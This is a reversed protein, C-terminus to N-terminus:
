PTVYSHGIRFAKGLRSDAAIASNLQELGQEFLSWLADGHPPDRDRDYPFDWSKQYILVPIGDFIQPVPERVGLFTDLERAIAQRNSDRIGRNFLGFLTFPDIDAVFGKRGDSFQDGALTSLGELRSQADQLFLILPQRDHRHARRADALAQYFSAWRFRHPSATCDGFRDRWFPAHRFRDLDQPQDQFTFAILADDQWHGPMVHWITRRNTSFFWERPASLRQWHVRIQRGDGPNEAVVGTAKIKMVSATNGHTDFPLGQKQTYAAKIAIRDGLRMSRVVLDMDRDDSGHEWLGEDIFRDTQDSGAIMAGVFWCPSASSASSAALPSLM